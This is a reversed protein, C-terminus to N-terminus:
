TSRVGTRPGCWNGQYGLKIAIDVLRVSRKVWIERDLRMTCVVNLDPIPIGNRELERCLFSADFKANHAALLVNDGEGVWANIYAEVRRWAGAFAPSNATDESTIGHVIRADWPIPAPHNVLTGLPNMFETSVNFDYRLIGMEVIRHNSADLGTTDCDFLFLRYNSM